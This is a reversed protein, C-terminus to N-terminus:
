VHSSTLCSWRRTRSGEGLIMLMGMNNASLNYVYKNQKAKRRWSVFSVIWKFVTVVCFAKFSPMKSVLHRRKTTVTEKSLHQAIEKLLVLQAKDTRMSVITHRLSERDAELAQLRTYLKEIDQENVGHLSTTLRLKLSEWTFRTLLIFEIVVVLCLLTKIDKAAELPSNPDYYPSQGVMVKEVVEVNGDPGSPNEDDVSCKLTYECPYVDIGVTSSDRGFGLVQDHMEAETIGCSLLRDKYAEVEYSLAEIAQEIEYLLEELVKLKEQDQTMKEEAFGKFQRAEMQIEAKERQLRLIMSMTENAASAAANREEELELHLDKLKERDAELAQLRTYLKEIDQENVGHLSTTLRLKLSEWTFRTLLIFEIVVVLCLLTKIDKAAELPSNPDYYPSQGVMVKEVVEVNGDPGSPNEDDVSCKLTYECPYVDIGVTSSDRGFGLVQDHMEAETIGCSLLRDKYAEVEYSLAEIAQEIEYLLEELVKLKEQDQTMKEEAFGKFQRAEMQIEAKERQLRLIMSMTENAASAAANREEELELHLDKVIKRQSSLDELLAACENEVLLKAASSSDSSGRSLLLMLNGEENFKRKVTRTCAGLSYDCVFDCCKVVDRSPFSQESDMALCM